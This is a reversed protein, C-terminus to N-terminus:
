RGQLCSRWQLRPRQERFPIDILKSPFTESTHESVAALELLEYDLTRAFEVADQGIVRQLQKWRSSNTLKTTALVGDTTVDSHDMRSKSVAEKSTQM